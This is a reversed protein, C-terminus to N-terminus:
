GPPIFEPIDLEGDIPAPREPARPRRSPRSERDIARPPTIQGGGGDVRDLESVMRSHVAQIDRLLLEANSRLSNGMERLNQVLEMGESRVDAAVVRAEGLIERSQAKAKTTSAAQSTSATKTAEAEERAKTVIRLAESTAVTKSQEAQELANKVIELAESEAARVRYDAARDAEAIRDRVRGETRVRIQEAAQEAAAVITGVRDATTAGAGRRNASATSNNSHKRSAAGDAPGKARPTPGPQEGSDTAGQGSDPPESMAMM